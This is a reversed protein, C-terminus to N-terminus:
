LRLTKITMKAQIKKPREQSMQPCMPMLARDPLFLLGHCNSQSRLVIFLTLSDNHETVMLSILCTPIYIVLSFQLPNIKLYPILISTGICVALNSHTTIRDASVFSPSRIKGIWIVFYIHKSNIIYIQQAIYTANCRYLHIHICVYLFINKRKIIYTYINDFIHIYFLISHSNDFVLQM